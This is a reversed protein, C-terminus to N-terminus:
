QMFLMFLMFLKFCNNQAPSHAPMERHHGSPRGCGYSDETDLSSVAHIAYIANITRPAGSRQMARGM